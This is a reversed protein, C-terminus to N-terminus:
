HAGAAVRALLGSAGERELEDISVQQLGQLQVPLRITRDARDTVVLVPKESGWAMGIETMVWSSLQTRPTGILVFVDAAKLERKLRKAFDEGARVADTSFVKAQAERSLVKRVQEAMVRDDQHFSLFVRPHRVMTDSATTM